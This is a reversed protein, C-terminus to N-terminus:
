AGSPRPGLDVPFRPADKSGQPFYKCKRVSGIVKGRNRWLDARQADDFGTGVQFEVGKYPGNLGVVRLAGLDGRGVLHEKHSSRETHGLANTTAENGNHMREEFGTVIVEMDAFQKLKMLWGQNLTSRGFKYGGTPSRLMVGEYGEYLTNEEFIQLDRYSEILTQPVLRVGTPWRSRESFLAGYRLHFPTSPMTYSDFVWFEVDPEGAHSMVASTTRRFVDHNHPPLILEGDLGVLSPHNFKSRTHENPVLKLTRTVLGQGLERRLARIGDLKPSAYLPFNLASPVEVTAALMPKMTM